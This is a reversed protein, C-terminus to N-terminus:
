FIEVGIRLVSSWFYPMLKQLNGILLTGVMQCLYLGQLHLLYLFNRLLLRGFSSVLTLDFSYDHIFDEPYAQINCFTGWFTIVATFNNIIKEVLSFYGCDRSYM